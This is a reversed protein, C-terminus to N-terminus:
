LPINKHNICCHEKNKLMDLAAIIRDRTEEPFIIEDILLNNEAHYPNSYEKKYESELLKREEPTKDKITHRYLISVAADAGMVAIEANPWAYVIDAGLSKSGMAIYAGGYAKRLIITILPVSAEAYAFIIKAGHAIIGNSEQDIGPMFAPVDVLTIIPMKFSDCFRVFRSIKMAAKYDLSGSLYKPQNAIVGVTQGEIKAFATVVNQAFYMKQEFISDKDFIADLIDKVDYTLRPNQPIIKTIDINHVSFKATKKYGFNPVYSLFRKVSDLCTYEDEYVYHGLGNHKMHMEWGGLESPSYDKFLVSKTVEPGTLFMLSITKVLFIADMLAPSYSAGGAAPGLIVAIQPIVGSYKVNRAFIEGYGNLGKIGEEIRAGGSDNISIYPCKANFAMDMINGIKKAHIQGVSGGLITFDESSCFVTSGNIKGYGTIVGDGMKDPSIGAFISVEHFTNKDFLYEIRTRASLKGKSEQKYNREKTFAQTRKEILINSNPM